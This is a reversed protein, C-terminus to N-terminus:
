LFIGTGYWSFPHDLHLCFLGEVQRTTIGQRLCEELFAGDSHAFHNFDERYRMRGLASRHIIQTYGWPYNEAAQANTAQNLEDFERLGDTRGSILADTQTATLFRRQGYHLHQPHSGIQDLALAVSHPAFLCDADTLWIWEGRSVELAQNIMAGKNMALETSVPIERVRVHPYSRAVAALHEHTGDPSQPNVVLVEYAGSPTQQHCWNRLTVRLRQLFRNCIIIVSLRCSAELAHVALNHFLVEEAYRVKLMLAGNLIDAVSNVGADWWCRKILQGDVRFAWRDADRDIELQLHRPGTNSDFGALFDKFAGFSLGAAEAKGSVTVEIVFNKADKLAAEDWGKWLLGLWEPGTGKVRVGDSHWRWEGGDVLQWQARAQQDGELAEQWESLMNENM